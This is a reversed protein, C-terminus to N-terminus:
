SGPPRYAKQILSKLLEVAEEVTAVVMRGSSTPSTDFEILFPCNGTSSEIQISVPERERSVYWLRDDDAPLKVSLQQFKVQSDFRRFQQMIRDIDRM